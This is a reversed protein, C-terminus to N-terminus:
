LSDEINIGVAGNEILLRINAQLQPITEAFGREIDVTLPLDVAAAIRNVINLLQSFPINEGDRYGNSLATSVSATAVSPFGIKKILRAGLADWINPLVLLKLAHHQNRFLAAKASQTQQNTM